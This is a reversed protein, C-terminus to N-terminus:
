EDVEGTDTSKQQRLLEEDTLYLSAGSKRPASPAAVGASAAPSPAAAAGAVIPASPASPGASVGMEDEEGEPRDGKDVSPAPAASAPLGPLVIADLKADYQVKHEMFVAREDSPLVRLADLKLTEPDIFEGKRKCTFHLHPGTSRGTSGVYGVTQLRTVKDGVKLGDAFRSLHAYGTEIDDAHQVKVLNGSPGGWGIFSVTGFTSAGVPAGLPAGFDVGTHPMIKHLVPHMRKMNFKSTIPANPVPSRWGGEFPARASEDFYGRSKPGDFYYIRIPKREGPFIVELVEIGAYRAFEGLATVEQAIVRVRTGREFEDLSMHGTMAERMTRLLAPEFGGVVVSRELGGSGVVFAGEVRERQIKLDLKEVSLLGDKGERAQYVEETSLSYEFAKVRKTARDLLVVFKDHKSSNNLPHVAEFAKLVRYAEKLPMGAKEVAKLFPEFGIQGELIRLAPDAASDKIRYPGPIKVRQRTKPAPEPEAIVTPAVAVSPVSSPVERPALQKRDFRMSIAIITAVTLMGTLAAFLAVLNPSMASQRNGAGGGVRPRDLLGGGVMDLELDRSKRSSLDDDTLGEFDLRPGSKPRVSQARTPSHADPKAEEVPADSEVPRTLVKVGPPLPTFEPAVVPLQMTPEVPKTSFPEVSVKSVPATSSSVSAPLELDPLEFAPLGTHHSEPLRLAADALDASAGPMPKGLDIAAPPSLNPAPAGLELVPELGGDDRVDPDVIRGVHQSSESARITM